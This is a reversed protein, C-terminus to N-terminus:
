ILRRFRLICWLNDMVSTQLGALRGSQGIMGFELNTVGGSGKIQGIDILSTVVEGEEMAVVVERKACRCPDTGMVLVKENQTVLADEDVVVV